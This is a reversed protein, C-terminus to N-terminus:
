APLQLFHQHLDPLPRPHGGDADRVVDVFGDQERIADHHHGVPGAGADALHHFDVQRSRAGALRQELVRAVVPIAFLEHTKKFFVIARLGCRGSRASPPVCIFFVVANIEAEATATSVDTPARASPKGTMPAMRSDFGIMSRRSRESLTSWAPM